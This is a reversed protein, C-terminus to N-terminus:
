ALTRYRLYPSCQRHQTQNPHRNRDLPLTLMANCYALYGTIARELYRVSDFSGRRIAYSTILAFCRDVLNLWSASTPTFHLHCFFHAARWAQV